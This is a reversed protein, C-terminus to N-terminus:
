PRVLKAALQVSAMLIRRVMRGRAFALKCAQSGIRRHDRPLVQSINGSRDRVLMYGGDDLTFPAFLTGMFDWPGASDRVFYSPLVFNSVNVKRTEGLITVEVSYASSQVPDCVEYAIERGDPMARWQSVDPDARMELAEHSPTTANTGGPDLTKAWIAGAYGHEGLLGPDGIDDLVEMPVAQGAPLEAYPVVPWPELGYAPCFDRAMQLNCAAAHFAFDDSSFKKSRSILAIEM